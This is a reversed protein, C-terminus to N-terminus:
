GQQQNRNRFGPQRQGNKKAAETLAKVPKMIISAFIVALGSGIVLIAIIIGVILKVINDVNEILPKKAFGVHLVGAQSKLIPVDIEIIEGKETYLHLISYESDLEKRMIDMLESPFGQKFTHAAINGTIDSVYIYAIDNHERVVHNIHMQLGLHNETLIYSSNMEALHKALFIGDKEYKSLLSGTLTTKVFIILTIGLSIIIGVTLLLIKNRLSM